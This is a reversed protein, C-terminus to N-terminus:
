RALISDILAVAQAQEDRLAAAEEAIREFRHLQDTVFTENQKLELLESRAADLDRTLPSILMGVEAQRRALEAGAAELAAPPPPAGAAAEAFWGWVTETLAGAWGYGSMDQAGDDHRLDATLAKDIVRDAAESIPPLGPGLDAQIRAMEGRWDALLRDYGVFCRPLDRSYAEAALMYASWLLLSKEVPFGDRRGLSSAVALPHRVPIVCRMAVGLSELVTRWLPFLVTVRPEKLLPRATEGYEEVFLARAQDIWAQEQEPPLQRHPFAFVDDWAGGGARLRRDNLQAVKWPEFYGQANHTDGPMPNQPLHAGALTLLQATASTGSRHMGLVLYAARQISGTAAQRKTM